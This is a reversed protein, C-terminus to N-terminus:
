HPHDNRHQRILDEGFDGDFERWVCHIHNNGNQTNDYEILFGKGQVFYYNGKERDIPGAWGFRVEAWGDDEIQALAADRIDERNRTLYCNVLNRVGEQQSTNLDQYSIGSIPLPQVSRHAGTFIDRPARADFVALRRQEESLSEALAFGLDEEDALARFGKRDGSPVEAPNAGLFTPTMSVGLGDVVTANVSVHHGEFRWGWPGEGPTGFIWFHYDEPDRGFGRNPGELVRLIGELDRISEVKRVGQESLGQKLLDMALARQWEDMSGLPLGDRRRPVFHWDKRAADFPKRLRDLEGEETADILARAATAMRQGAEDHAGAELVLLSLSLVLVLAAFNFRLKM